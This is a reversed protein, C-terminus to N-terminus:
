PPPPTFAPDIGGKDVNASSPNMARGRRGSRPSAQVTLVQASALRGGSGAAPPEGRSAWSPKRQPLAESLDVRRLWGLWGDRRATDGRAHLARVMMRVPRARSRLDEPFEQWLVAEHRDAIDFRDFKM